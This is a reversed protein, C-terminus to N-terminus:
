STCRALRRSRSLIDARGFGGEGGEKKRYFVRVLFLGCAPLVPGARRRDRSALIEEVDGPRFRGRGVDVLTGAMTRVMNYLFGDGDVFIWLFNGKSLLHVAKVTRVTSKRPYGPNTSFAAFDRRGVMLAAAERMAGLSLHYRIHTFYGRGFPPAVDGRYIRYAYRKGTAHYRAHFDPPAEGMSLVRIEGPLCANLAKRLVEPSLRSTTRFNATQGLSHVGADTRSAGTVSIRGGTVRELAGEVEEQVTRFGAQRQWGSFPRGDYALTMWLNRMPPGTEMVKIM